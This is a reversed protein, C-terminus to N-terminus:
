VFNFFSVSNSGLLNALRQSFHSVFIVLGVLMWIYVPFWFSCGHMSQQVYANRGDYDIAVDFNLWAIIVSLADTSEVPLFTTHNVGVINAYFVLGSVTGTAVTLKCVLLFFILAVGM